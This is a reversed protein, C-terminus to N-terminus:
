MKTLSLRLLIFRSKFKHVKDQHQLFSKSLIKVIFLRILIHRQLKFDILVFLRIIISLIQVLLIGDCSFILILLEFNLIRLNFIHNSRLM